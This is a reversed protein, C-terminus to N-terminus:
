RTGPPTARTSGACAVATFRRTTRWDTGAHTLSGSGARLDAALLRLLTTKGTGTDGELLTIGAPLDFSLCTFLPLQGPYTFCLSQAQLVPASPAVPM